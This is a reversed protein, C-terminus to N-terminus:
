ILKTIDTLVGIGQALRHTTKAYVRGNVMAFGLIERREPKKRFTSYGILRYDGIRIIKQGVQVELIVPNKYDTPITKGNHGCPCGNVEIKTIEWDEPNRPTLIFEKKNISILGDEFLIDVPSEGLQKKIQQRITEKIGDVMDPYNMDLLFEATHSKLIEQVEEISKGPYLTARANLANWRFDYALKILGEAASESYSKEKPKKNFIKLYDKVKKYTGYPLDSEELIEEATVTPQKGIIFEANAYQRNRQLAERLFEGALEEVSKPPEETFPQKGSDRSLPRNYWKERLGITTNYVELCANLYEALIFDPTDSGNEKSHKNLLTELEKKFNDM